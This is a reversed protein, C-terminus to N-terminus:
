SRSPFIGNYAICFNMVLFPPRNEHPQGGGTLGVANPSLAVSAPGAAYGPQKGRGGGGFVNGGPGTAGGAAACNVSHNHSPLETSLLTVSAEGGTEGIVRPTLGPGNGQGLAFNGRLDPLNFTSTGNGGYFTGILAFLATYQSINLATGNCMFWGKPAFNTGFITIQGLYPNSM